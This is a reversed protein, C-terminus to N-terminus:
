PTSQNETARSVGHEARIREVTAYGEAEDADEIEDLAARLRVIEDRLAVLQHEARIARFEMYPKEPQTYESDSMLAFKSRSRSVTVCEGVNM